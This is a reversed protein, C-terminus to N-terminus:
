NIYGFLTVQIRMLFTTWSDGNSTWSHNKDNRQCWTRVYVYDSVNSYVAFGYAGNGHSNVNATSSASFDTTQEQTVVGSSITTGPLTIKMRAGSITISPTTGVVKHTRASDMYWTTSNRYFVGSLLVIPQRSSGKFSYGCITPVGSSMYVPQHTSGVTTTYSSLANTSSYYALKGSTGSNVTANLYYTMVTPVGAYM